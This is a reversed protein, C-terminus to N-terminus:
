RLSMTTALCNGGTVRGLLDPFRWLFVSFRAVHRHNWFNVDAWTVHRAEGIRLGSYALFCVLNACDKSQRAGANQIADVFKLFEERSPLELRKQRIKMRSLASEPNNFRAGTRIAEDFIAPLMGISNNVVSPSYHQQYRSLWAECDRQTVKRVDTDFLSRWSRRIFDIMMERYDKSRPKLSVSARVKHRYVDAADSVTMKGDAFAAFSEIKSRHERLTDPLRQKAVSFTATKLSKWVLKGGVRFRAFYTGSGIGSSTRYPPQRGFRKASTSM